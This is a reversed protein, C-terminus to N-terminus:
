GCQPIVWWGSLLHGLINIFLFTVWRFHAHPRAAMWIRLDPIRNHDKFAFHTRECGSDGWVSSPRSNSRSWGADWGDVCKDVRIRADPRKKHWQGHLGWGICITSDYKVYEHDSHEHNSVKPCQYSTHETVVAVCTSTNCKKAFWGYSHISEDWFQFLYLKESNEVWIWPLNWFGHLFPTHQNTWASQCPTNSGCGLVERTITQPRCKSMNSDLVTPYHYSRMDIEDHYGVLCPLM